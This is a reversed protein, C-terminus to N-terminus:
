TGLPHGETLREDGVPAFRGNASPNATKRAARGRQLDRRIFHLIEPGNM